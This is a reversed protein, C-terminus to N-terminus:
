RLLTEKVLHLSSRQPCMAIGVSDMSVCHADEEAKIKLSIM